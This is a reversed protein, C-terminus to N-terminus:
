YLVYGEPRVDSNSPQGLWRSHWGYTCFRNLKLLINTSQDSVMEPAFLGIALWKVKRWFQPMAKSNEPVNLHEATWVCLGITIICSSLISYTGRYRPEAGWLLTENSSPDGYPHLMEKKM